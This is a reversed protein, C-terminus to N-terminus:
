NNWGPFELKEGMEGLCDDCSKNAFAVHNLHAVVRGCNDCTHALNEWYEESFGNNLVDELSVKLAHQHGHEDTHWAQAGATWREEPYQFVWRADKRDWIMEGLNRDVMWLLIDGKLHPFEKQLKVTHEAEERYGWPGEFLKWDERVAEEVFGRHKHHEITVSM